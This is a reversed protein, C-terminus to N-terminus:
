PGPADAYAHGVVNACVEDVALVLAECLEDPASAAACADAVHARVAALDARGAARFAARRGRPPPWDECAAPGAAPLATPPPRTPSRSDIV